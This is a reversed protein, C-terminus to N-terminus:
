EEEKNTKPQLTTTVVAEVLRLADNKTFGQQRLQKYFLGCSESLAGIAAVYNKLQESM